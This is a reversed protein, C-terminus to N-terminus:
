HHQYCPSTLGLITYCCNTGYLNNSQVYLISKNNLMQCSCMYIAYRVYEQEVFGAQTEERVQSCSVAAGPCLYSQWGGQYIWGQQERTEVRITWFPNLAPQFERTTTEAWEPVPKYDLRQNVLTRFTPQIMARWITRFAELTFHFPDKPLVRRSIPLTDKFSMLTKLSSEMKSSRSWWPIM